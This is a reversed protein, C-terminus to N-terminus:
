AKLIKIRNKTKREPRSSGSSMTYWGIAGVDSCNSLADPSNLADAGTIGIWLSGSRDCM